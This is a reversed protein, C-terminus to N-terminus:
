AFGAIKLGETYRRLFDNGRRPAMALWLQLNFNAGRRRQFDGLQRPLPKVVDEGFNTLYQFLNTILPEFKRAPAEVGL